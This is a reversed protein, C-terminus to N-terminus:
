AARKGTLALAVTCWGGLLALGGIPTLVGLARPAGALLVYLSGSFLVIGCFMLWGAVQLARQPSREYLLGIAM